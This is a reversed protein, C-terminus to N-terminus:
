CPPDILMHNHESKCFATSARRKRADLYTLRAFVAAPISEGSDSVVGVSPSAFVLRSM